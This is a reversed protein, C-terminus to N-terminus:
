HAHCITCPALYGQVWAAHSSLFPSVRGTCTHGNRSYKQLITINVYSTWMSCYISLINSLLIRVFSFYLSIVFCCESVGIFKAITFSVLPLVLLVIAYGGLGIGLESQKHDARLHCYRTAYQSVSVPQYMYSCSLMKAKTDM